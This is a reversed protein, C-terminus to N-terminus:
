FFFMHIGPYRVKNLGNIALQCIKLSFIAFKENLFIWYFMQSSNFILQALFPGDLALRVNLM